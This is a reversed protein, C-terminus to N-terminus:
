LIMSYIINVLNTNYTTVSQDVFPYQFIMPKLYFCMYLMCCIYLFHILILLRCTLILHGNVFPSFASSINFQGRDLLCTFFYLTKHWAHIDHMTKRISPY